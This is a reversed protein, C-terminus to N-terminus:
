MDIILEMGNGDPFTDTLIRVWDVVWWIFIGISVVWGCPGFCTKLCEGFTCCCCTECKFLCCCIGAQGILFLKVIGIIIYIFVGRSLYFWDAGLGGAFFSILFAYLKSRKEVGANDDSVEGEEVDDNGGDDSGSQKLSAPASLGQSILVSILLLLFVIKKTNLM